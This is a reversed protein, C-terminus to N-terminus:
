VEAIFDGQIFLDLAPNELDEFDIYLRLFCNDIMYRDSFTIDLLSSELTISRKIRDITGIMKFKYMSGYFKTMMNCFADSECYKKLEMDIEMRVGREVFKDHIM